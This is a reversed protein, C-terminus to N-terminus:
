GAEDSSRGRGVGATAMVRTIELNNVEAAVPRGRQGFWKAYTGHGSGRRISRTRTDIAEGSTCGEGIEPHTPM